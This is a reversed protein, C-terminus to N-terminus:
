SPLRGAARRAKFGYLFGTAGIIIALGLVARELRSTSKGPTSVSSHFPDPVTVPFERRHGEEDDIVVRWAGPGDPVFSFYGRPDTVGAQFERTPSSPTFVQVKAFPVPESGGYAARVVVAPAALSVTAELEHAALNPILLLAPFILCRLDM